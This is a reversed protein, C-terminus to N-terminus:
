SFNSYHQLFLLNIIVYDFLASFFSFAVDFLLDDSYNIANLELHFIHDDAPELILFFM